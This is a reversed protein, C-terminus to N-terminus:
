ITYVSRMQNQKFRAASYQVRRNVKQIQNQCKSLILQLTWHGAAQNLCISYFDEYYKYTNPICVFM